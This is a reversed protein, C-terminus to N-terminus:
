FCIADLASIGGGSHVLLANKGFVENKALSFATFAAKASYVPDLLVGQERAFQQMFHLLTTNARGFSPATQPKHFYVPLEIPVAFRKTLEEFDKQKAAVTIIHVRLFRNLEQLGQLLGLAQMGTGADVVIDSFLIQEEEENRVIDEALSAAGKLAEKCCAGEPLVFSDPLARALDEAIQDKKKWDRRPVWVIREQPVFYEILAQNLHLRPDGKERLVLYPTIGKELFLQIGAVINNANPGGILIAHRIGKEVLEPLLSSYKRVKSGSVGFSLEDDRKLYLGAPAPFRLPHVRSCLCLTM